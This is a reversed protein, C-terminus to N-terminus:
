KLVFHNVSKIGTEPDIYNVIKKGKFMQGAHVQLDTNKELSGNLTLIYDITQNLIEPAEKILESVVEEPAITGSIEAKQSKDLIIDCASELGAIDDQPFLAIIPYPVNGEWFDQVKEFAIHTTDPAGLIVIGAFDIETECLISYLESFYSKGGHKFSEPYVLPYILGGDEELGYKQSLMTKYQTVIEESNFDYGFIVCIRKNTVHWQQITQELLKKNEKEKKAELKLAKKQQDKEKNCGTFAFLVLLLLLLKSIKKM